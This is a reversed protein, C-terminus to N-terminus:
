RSIVFVQLCRGLALLRAGRQSEHINLSLVPGGCSETWYLAETACSTVAPPGACACLLGKPHKSRFLLRQTIHFWRHKPSFM